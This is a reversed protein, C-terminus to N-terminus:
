RTLRTSCGACSRLGPCAQTSVTSRQRGSSATPLTLPTTRLPPSFTSTCQLAPKPRLHHTTAREEHEEVQLRRHRSRGRRTHSRDEPPGDDGISDRVDGRAQVDLSRGAPRFASWRPSLEVAGASCTSYSDPLGLAM